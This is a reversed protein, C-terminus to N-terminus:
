PAALCLPESPGGNGGVHLERGQVARGPPPPSPLRPGWPSEQFFGNHHSKYVNTSHSIQHCLVATCEQSHRASLTPSEWHWTALLLTVARMASQVTVTVPTSSPRPLPCLRHGEQPKWPQGWGESNATETARPGPQTM